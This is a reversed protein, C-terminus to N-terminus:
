REVKELVQYKDTDTGCTIVSNFYADELETDDKYARLYFMTNKLMGMKYASLGAIKSADRFAPIKAAASMAENFSNQKYNALACYYIIETDQNLGELVTLAESYKSKDILELANARSFAMKLIDKRSDKLNSIVHSNILKEAMSINKINLCVDAFDLLMKTDASNDDYIRSYYKYAINYLKKSYYLNAIYKYIKESSYGTELGKMFYGLAKDQEGRSLYIEGLYLYGQKYDKDSVILKQILKEAKIYDTTKLYLEVLRKAILPSNDSDGRKELYDAAKKWDNKKEFLASIRLAFNNKVPSESLRKYLILATDINGTMEAAEAFNSIKDFASSGIIDQYNASYLSYAKKFDNKGFYIEAALINKNRYFESVSNIKNLYELAATTQGRRLYENGLHYMAFENDPQLLVIKELYEFAQDFKKENLFGRVFETYIKVRRSTAETIDGFRGAATNLYKEAGKYDGSNFLIEGIYFACEANEPENQYYQLLFSKASSFDKQLYAIKGAIFMLRSLERDNVRKLPASFNIGSLLKSASIIDGAALLKEAIDAIVANDTKRLQSYKVILDATKKYDNLNRSIAIMNEVVQPTPKKILFYYDIARRQEGTKSLADGAIQNYEDSFKESAAFTKIENAADNFKGLKFM